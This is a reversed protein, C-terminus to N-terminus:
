RVNYFIVVTEAWFSPWLKLIKTYLQLLSLADGELITKKILAEMCVWVKSRFYKNSIVLKDFIDKFILKILM